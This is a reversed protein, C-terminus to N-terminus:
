FVDVCRSSVIEWHEALVALILSRVADQDESEFPKTLIQRADMVM